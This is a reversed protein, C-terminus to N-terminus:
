AGAVKGGPFSGGTGMPYAPHAGSGNQIRHNLCFIGLVRWSDFGTRGARLGASYSQAIIAREYPNHQIFNSKSIYAVFCVLCCIFIESVNSITFIPQSINNCNQLKCFQNKTTGNIQTVLSIINAPCTACM